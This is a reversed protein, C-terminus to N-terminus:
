LSGVVRAPLAGRLANCVVIREARALDARTLAAEEAAMASDELLVSRMVGPLLGNALAPTRWRGDLLLFVNSRAGETLLGDRNFFLVDFAGRRTAEAIAADYRQRLTTKHALLPDCGDIAVEALLLGAEVPSDDLLAHKLELSGDHGLAARLRWPGEGQLEGLCGRLADAVHGRDFEFGLEAASAALRALHRDLHRVGGARSVHMTEFLSFGPDLASLFRGKLLCERYEDDADSDITIGAGVGMHGVRRGDDAPALTITRIAVSLCFDGCAANAAPADIWGISGTYLGRPCQELEAILQMTRHKPAGTISGCPFLARMVEPFGATAPLTAEITSTMQFVTPYREVTFLAPVTVSGTVAVRGIDNRLLDVIMLNEARNKEDEGLWRAIAEDDEGAEGRPATGKMPRASLRGQRHRLFLEPSLSLVYEAQGGPPMRLLAGFAVPQRARARRFLSLPSGVVGFDLGCTYNVQYSEGERIAEHIRDIARDFAERGVSARLGFVGAPLPARSTQGAEEAEASALWADAQEASFRQMRDFLLVQLAGGDGECLAEHGARQLRAGWEYDALVVAHRGARLEADALAWVADLQGPDDCRLARVLGTYLRSTPSAASAECDDLLAFCDM